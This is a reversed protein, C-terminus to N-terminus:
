KKKVLELVASNMTPLRCDIELALEGLRKADNKDIPKRSEAFHIMSCILEIIEASKNQQELAPWKSWSNLYKEFISQVNEIYQVYNNTNFYDNPYENGAWKLFQVCGNYLKEPEINKK